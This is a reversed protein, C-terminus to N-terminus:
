IKVWARTERLRDVLPLRPGLLAWGTGARGTRGWHQLRLQQVGVRGARAELLLRRVWEKCVWFLGLLPTAQLLM